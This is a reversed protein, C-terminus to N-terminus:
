PCPEFGQQDPFVPELQRFAAEPEQGGAGTQVQEAVDIRVDEGMSRMKRFFTGAAGAPRIADSFPREGGSRGAEAASGLAATARRRMLM